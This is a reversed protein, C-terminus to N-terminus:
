DNFKQGRSTYLEFAFDAAQEPDYAIDDTIDKHISNLQFVGRDETLDNNVHIAHDWGDSEALTVAVATTLDIVDELGAQWWVRALDRPQWQTGYLAGHGPQPKPGTKM